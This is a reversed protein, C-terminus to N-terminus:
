NADHAWVMNSCIVPNWKCCLLMKNYKHLVSKLDSLLLLHANVNNEHINITLVAEIFMSYLYRKPASIKFHAQEGGASAMLQFGAQNVTKLM